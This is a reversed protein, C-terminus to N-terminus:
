KSQRRVHDHACSSGLDFVWNMQCAMMSASFRGDSDVASKEWLVKRPITMLPYEPDRQRCTGYAFRYGAAAVAATADANHRGDPYAFHQVKVYLRDELDRRSRATEEIMKERSENTLLPHTRTHSGITMGASQMEELMEWSLASLEKYRCDGFGFRVELVQVMRNAEAQTVDNLLASMVAFANPQMRSIAETKPTTIGANQLLEVVQRSTQKGHSFAAKLLLYLKDHLQMQQTGVLATVAFVTAPIGKKLLLPFAHHYVDSYGDDFALAAAPKTSSTGTELRSGIDDLSIFEYHRGIWDLHQEFMRTSILMSSISSRSSEEINEVVRHYSIVAPIRSSGTLAGVLRDVGTLRIGISAATKFTAKM